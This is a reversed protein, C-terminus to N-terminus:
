KGGVLSYLISSGFSLLISFALAWWFGDVHVGKFFNAALMVMFANIVLLFLGLSILTVPITLIVLIPKVVANLLALVLAFLAATKMDAIKVGSLIGPLLYAILATILVKLIFNM